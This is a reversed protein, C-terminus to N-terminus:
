ESQQKAPRGWTLRRTKKPQDGHGKKGKARKKAKSTPVVPAVTKGKKLLFNLMTRQPTSIVVTKKQQCHFLFLHQFTCLCCVLLCENNVVRVCKPSARPRRDGGKRTRGFNTLGPYNDFYNDKKESIYDVDKKRRRSQRPQVSVDNVEEAEPLWEEDEM